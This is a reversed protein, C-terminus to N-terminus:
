RFMTHRVDLKHDFAVWLYDLPYSHLQSDACVDHNRHLTKKNERKDQQVFSLIVYM